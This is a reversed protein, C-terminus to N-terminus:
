APSAQLQESLSILAREICLSTVYRPQERPQGDLHREKPERDIARHPRKLSRRTYPDPPAGSVVLVIGLSVLSPFEHVRPQDPDAPVSTPRFQKRRVAFSSSSSSSASSACSVSGTPTASPPPTLSLKLASESILFRSRSAAAMAALALTPPAFHILLHWISVTRADGTDLHPRHVADAGILIRAVCWLSFVYEPRLSGREYLSLLCSSLPSWLDFDLHHACHM